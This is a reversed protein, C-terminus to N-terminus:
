GAWRDAGPPEEDIVLRPGASAPAKPRIFIQRGCAPCARAQNMLEVRAELRADCFSCDFKFYPRM